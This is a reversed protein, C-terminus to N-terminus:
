LFCVVFKTPHMVRSIRPKKNFSIVLSSSDNDAKRKENPAIAASGVSVIDTLPMDVVIVLVIDFPRLSTTLILLL